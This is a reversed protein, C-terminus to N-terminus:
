EGAEEIARYGPAEVLGPVMVAAWRGPSLVSREALRTMADRTSVSADGVELAEALQDMHLARARRALESLDTPGGRLHRVTERVVDALLALYPWGPQAVIRAAWEAQRLLHRRMRGSRQAAVALRAGAWQYFLKARPPGIMMLPSWRVRALGENVVQLAREPQGAYLLCDTRAHIEALHQLHVGSAWGRSAGCAGWAAPLDDDILAVLSAFRTRYTTQAFRDDRHVADKLYSATRDRLADYAGMWRLADQMVSRAFSLEWRAGILEREAIHEAREAAEVCQVWAGRAWAAGARHIDELARVQSSSVRKQDRKLEPGLAGAIAAELANARARREADGSAYASRMHPGQLYLAFAPDVAAIGTSFDFLHDALEAAASPGSAVVTTSPDDLGLRRRVFRMFLAAMQAPRSEPLSLGLEVLVGRAMQIGRDVHGAQLLQTAAQARLRRRMGSTSSLTAAEQYRAASAEGRGSLALASALAELTELPVQQHLAMARRFCTVAHEFGLTDVAIRGAEEWLAAAHAREGASAWHDAVLERPVALPELARALMEHMAPRDADALQSAIARRLGAHAMDLGIAGRMPVRCLLGIGELEHVARHLERAGVASFAEIPVPQTVLAAACALARVPPALTALRHAMVEQLSTHFSDNAPAHDVLHCLMGPNGNAGELLLDLEIESRGRMEARATAVLRAPEAGLPTLVVRTVISPEYAAPISLGSFLWRPGSGDLARHVEVWLPVEEEAWQLDDVWLLVPCRRHVAQLVRALAAALRRRRERPNAPPPSSSALPLQRFVPFAEQVVALDDDLLAERFSADATPLWRALEDLVEDLCRHAVHEGPHCRGRLVRAGSEGVIASCLSTKGIGSPGLVAVTAGDWRLASRVQALEDTRGVVDGTSTRALAVSTSSQELRHLVGDVTARRSPDNELLSVIGDAAARMGSPVQALREVVRADLVEWSLVDRPLRQGTIAEYMVAGASFADWAEQPEGGYLAEPALYAPTGTLGQSPDAFRPERHRAALGYDLLVTHDGPEVMVNTAKVDRHILGKAHLADLGRLLGCFVADVAPPDRPEWRDLSVGVLREMALYARGGEVFLEYLPVLHPSHVRRLLRFERKLQYLADPGAGALLSKIAVERGDREHHAVFVLGQRGRGLEKGLRYPGVTFTPLGGLATM